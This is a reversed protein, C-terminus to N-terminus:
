TRAVVYVNATVTTAGGSPSGGGGGATATVVQVTPVARSKLVFATAGIIVLALGFIIANRGFARRVTPPPADRNIRLKSLDAPAAM